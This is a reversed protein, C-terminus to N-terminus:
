PLITWILPYPDEFHKLTSCSINVVKHKIEHQLLCLLSLFSTYYTVMLSYKNSCYPLITILIKFNGYIIVIESVYRGTTCVIYLMNVGEAMFHDFCANNWVTLM